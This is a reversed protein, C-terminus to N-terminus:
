VRTWPKAEVREINKSPTSIINPAILLGLNTAWENANTNVAFRDRAVEVVRQVNDASTIENFHRQVEYAWLSFNKKLNLKSYEPHIWKDAFNEEPNVPNLVVDSNSNAFSVLANIVENLADELSSTGSYASAALTTIIVSIPKSDPASAFMMDRHRKLLQIIKQLPAKRKFLPIDDIQAKTAYAERLSHTTMRLEFWKAYGEPNSIQWDDSINSYNHNSNDTICVAFSSLNSAVERNLGHKHMSETLRVVNKDSEPICPVIDMHFNVGDAYELRWCRHKEEKKAQIQRAIRYAEIEEGVIDKLQQQSHTSTSVGKRVNCALDLDYSEAENIPKIATGLRFSGQPFIHPKNYQLKSGERDFWAGLDEYRKVAKDYASEPLELSQTLQELLKITKSPYM